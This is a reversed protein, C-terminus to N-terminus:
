NMEQVRATNLKLSLVQCTDNESLEADGRARQVGAPILPHEEPRISDGELQIEDRQSRMKFRFHLLPDGSPLM